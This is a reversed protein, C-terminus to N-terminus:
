TMRRIQALRDEQAVVQNNACNYIENLATIADFLDQTKNVEETNALTDPVTGAAPMDTVTQGLGNTYTAGPATISATTVVGGVVGYNLTAAGDGGGATTALLISYNGDVYGAGGNIIVANSVEGTAVDVEIVANTGPVQRAEIDEKFLLDALGQVTGGAYAYIEQMEQYGARCNTLADIMQSCLASAKESVGESNNQPNMGTRWRKESTHGAM